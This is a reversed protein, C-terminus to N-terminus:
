DESAPVETWFVGWNISFPHTGDPTSGTEDDTNLPIPRLQTCISTVPDFAVCSSVAGSLVTPNTLDTVLTATAPTYNSQPAGALIDTIAGISSDETLGQPDEHRTVAFPYGRGGASSGFGVSGHTKDFFVYLQHPEFEACATTKGSIIELRGKGRPNLYGASTADTFPVVTGSDADFSIYVQAREYHHKGLKV